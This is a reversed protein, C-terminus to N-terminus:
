EIVEHEEIGYEHNYQTTPDNYKACHAKAKEKDLYIAEIYDPGCDHNHITVIYIKM